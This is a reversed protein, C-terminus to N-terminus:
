IGLYKRAKIIYVPAVALESAIDANKRGEKVATSIASLYQEQVDKWDDPVDLVGNGAVPAATTTETNADAKVAAQADAQSDFFEWPAAVKYPVGEANHADAGPDFVNVVRAWLPTKWTSLAMKMVDRLEPAKTATNGDLTWLTPDSEGLAQWVEVRWKGLTSKTWFTDADRGADLVGILAEEAEKTGVNETFLLTRLPSDPMAIGGYTALASVLAPLTIFHWRYRRASRMGTIQVDYALQPDKDFKTPDINLASSVKTGIRWIHNPAYQQGDAKAAAEAKLKDTFYLTTPADESYRKFLDAGYASFDSVQTRFSWMVGANWPAIIGNPTFSGDGVTITDDGAAAQIKALRDPNFPM